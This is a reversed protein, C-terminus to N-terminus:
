IALLTVSIQPLLMIWPIVESTDLCRAHHTHARTFMLHNSNLLPPQKRYSRNPTGERDNGDGGGMNGTVLLIVLFAPYLM